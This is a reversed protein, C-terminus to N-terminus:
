KINNAQCKALLFFLFSMMNFVNLKTKNKNNNDTPAILFIFLDSIMKHDSFETICTELTMKHKLM